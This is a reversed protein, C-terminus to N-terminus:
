TDSEDDQGTDALYAHCRGALLLLLYSYPTLSPHTYTSIGLCAIGWLFLLASAVLDDGTAGRFVVKIGPIIVLITYAVAIPLGGIFLMWLFANDFYQYERDGFFWVGTPGRGLILDSLPVQAFFDRYQGSRTDEYLREILMNYSAALENQFLFGAILVVIVLSVIIKLRIFEVEEGKIRNPSKVFFLAALLLISMLVWSRTQSFVATVTFAMFPFTRLWLRWGHAKGATLLSWGSFWALNVLLLVPGSESRVDIIKYKAVSYLALAATLYAILNITPDLKEWASKTMGAFVLICSLWVVPGTAGLAKWSVYDKLDYAIIAWIISAVQLIWFSTRATRSLREYQGTIAALFGAFTVSAISGAHLLYYIGPKSQPDTFLDGTNAGVMMAIIVTSGWSLILGLSAFFTILGDHSGWCDDNTMLKCSDQDNAATITKM